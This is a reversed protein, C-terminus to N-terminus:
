VERSRIESVLTERWSGKGDEENEIAGVKRLGVFNSSENGM